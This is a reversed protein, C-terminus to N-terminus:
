RLAREVPPYGDLAHFDPQATGLPYATMYRRRGATGRIAFANVRLVPLYLESMELTAVGRWRGAGRTAQLAMPLHKQVITRRGHLRLALHHGYPGWELEVYRDGEAVLFLEVVEHEWLEWTSGPPAAPAPDGAFPASLEVSLLDNSSSVDIQVHDSPPLPHGDWTTAVVLRLPAELGTRDADSPPPEDGM